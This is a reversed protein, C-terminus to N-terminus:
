LDCEILGKYGTKRLEQIRLFLRGDTSERADPWIFIERHLIGSAHILCEGEVRSINWKLDHLSAGPIARALLAHYQAWPM